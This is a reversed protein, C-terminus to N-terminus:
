AVREMTSPNIHRCAPRRDLHVLEWLEREFLVMWAGCTCRAIHDHTWQQQTTLGSM